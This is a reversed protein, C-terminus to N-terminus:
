PVIENLMSRKRWVGNENKKRATIPCVDLLRRCASSMEEGVETRGIDSFTHILCHLSIRTRELFHASLLQTPHHPRPELLAIWVELELEIRGRCACAIPLKETPAGM